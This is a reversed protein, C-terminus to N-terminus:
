GTIINNIEILYDVTLQMGGDSNILNSEIDVLAKELRKQNTEIFQKESILIEKMVNFM